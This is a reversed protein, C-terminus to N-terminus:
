TRPENPNYGVGAVNYFDGAAEAVTTAEFHDGCAMNNRMVGEHLKLFEDVGVGSKTFAALDCGAVNVATGRSSGVGKAHYKMNARYLPKIPQRSQGPRSRSSTPETYAGDMLPDYYGIDNFQADRHTELVTRHYHNPVSIGPSLQVEYPVQVQTRTDPSPYDGERVTRPRHPQHSAPAYAYYAVAPPSQRSVHQYAVPAENPTAGSHHSCSRTERSARTSQPRQSDTARVSPTGARTAQSPRYFGESSPFRPM